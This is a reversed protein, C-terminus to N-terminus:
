IIKRCKLRRELEYKKQKEKREKENEKQRWKVFDLYPKCQDHYKGCGKRECDKCPCVM